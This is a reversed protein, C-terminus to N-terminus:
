SYHRRKKRKELVVNIKRKINIMEFFIVALNVAMKLSICTTKNFIM